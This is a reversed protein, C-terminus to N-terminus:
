ARCFDCLKRLKCAACQPARAKCVARGHDILLHALRIWDKEPYLKMLAFEIKVPDEEPTLGLRGALRIVHTEVAISPKGFANGLVVNATKRGVGPLKVLDELRDPVAGRYQGALTRACNQISRAKSRYFGTSHIAKEIAASDAAGLAEPTPYQKFLGPTVRNVREDTCQASLITAILLQFPNKFHLSSHAAPYERKLVSIIKLARAQIARPGTM